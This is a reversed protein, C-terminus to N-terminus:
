KGRITQEDIRFETGDPLTVAQCNSPLLGTERCGFLSSRLHKVNPSPWAITDVGSSPYYYILMVAPDGAYFNAMLEDCIDETSTHLSGNIAILQVM